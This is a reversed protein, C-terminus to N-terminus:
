TKADFIVNLGITFLIFWSIHKGRIMVLPLVGTAISTYGIPSLVLERRPTGSALQWLLLAFGWWVVTM